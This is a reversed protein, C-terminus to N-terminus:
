GGKYPDSRMGKGDPRICPSGYLTGSLMYFATGKLEFGPYKRAMMCAREHATQMERKALDRDPLFNLTYSGDPNSELIWAHGIDDRRLRDTFHFQAPLQEFPTGKFGTDYGGGFAGVSYLLLTFLAFAGMIHLFAREFTNM